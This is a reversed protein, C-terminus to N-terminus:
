LTETSTDQYDPLPAAHTFLPIPSGPRACYEALKRDMTTQWKDHWKSGDFYPEAPCMWAVPGKAEGNTHIPLYRLLDAARTLKRAQLHREKASLIDAIAHLDAVANAVYGKVQAPSSAFQNELLEAIRIHMNEADHYGNRQASGACDRMWRALIAVEGEAPTPTTTVSTSDRRIILIDPHQLLEDAFDESSSLPSCLVDRSPELESIIAALEDKAVPVPAPCGWRELAARVVTRVDFGDEGLCDHVLADIQADTPVMQNFEKPIM